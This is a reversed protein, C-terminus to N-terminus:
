VLLAAAALGLLIQVGIEFHRVKLKRLVSRGLIATAVAGAALIAAPWVMDATLLDNRIYSTLKALNSIISTAAMAGVFAEKTIKMERLLIVKILNGSGLLGSVFGYLASGVALGIFGIKFSPLRNTLSLALYALVMLGLATKITEAPAIALVQAGLYAFPLCGVAMISVVQWDIHRGFLATKTITSATFLVTGLAIATKVPIVHSGVAVVLLATGFGFVASALSGALGIAVFLAYDM